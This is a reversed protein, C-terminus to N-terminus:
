VKKSYKQNICDLYYGSILHKHDYTKDNNCIM